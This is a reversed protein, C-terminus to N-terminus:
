LQSSRIQKKPQLNLEVNCLNTYTNTKNIKKELKLLSNIFTENPHFNQQLM